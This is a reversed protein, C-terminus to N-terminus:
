CGDSADHHGALVWKRKGATISRICDDTEGPTSQSFSIIAQIVGMLPALRQEDGHRTFIPKGAHSLVFVHKERPLLPNSEDDGNSKPGHAANEQAM